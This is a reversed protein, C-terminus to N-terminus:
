GQPLFILDDECLVVKGCDCSRLFLILVCCADNLCSLTAQSVQNFIHDQSHLEVTWVWEIYFWVRIESSGAWHEHKKVHPSRTLKRRLPAQLLGRWWQSDMSREGSLLAKRVTGSTSQVIAAALIRTEPNHAIDEHRQSSLSQGSSGIGGRTLDDQGGVASDASEERLFITARNRPDSSAVPPSPKSPKSDM